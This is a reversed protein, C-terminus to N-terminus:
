PQRRLREMEREIQEQTAVSPGFASWAHMGLGIGWGAIPFLPWFFGQGTVWWIGVLFSNVLVFAVAHSRFEQKDKLRRVALEWLARESPHKANLDVGYAGSPGAAPAVPAQPPAPEVFPDQPTDQPQSASPVMIIM